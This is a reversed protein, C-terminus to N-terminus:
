NRVSAANTPISEEFRIVTEGPKAVGLSERAIRILANTDNNLSEVQASLQRRTESEKAVETDLRLVEKRYNENQRILPLYWVGIAVLGAILLLGIVLRTLKDWISDEVNV